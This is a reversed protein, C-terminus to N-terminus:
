GFTFDLAQVGPDLFEIEFTRDGVTGKQRILQYLRPERVIGTGDPSSDVGCDNGPAVGDMTVKFRIPRGDKSPALVLHLDRSHFRYIIRAPASILVASEANVNWPGILGWHNFVLKAPSGYHKGRNDKLGSPSAFREALRFGIYSEPSREDASPPAEIGRGVIDDVPFEADSSGKEKLLNQIALEMEKYGGEGFHRYRIQGRADVLYFAPWYENSFAHWIEYNKDMVVPYTVNHERLAIEVNPQEREFSFEPTHVGIVVLGSDRYKASWEKVYPLTRLSNICTYTWFNILVVKGRLSTTSLPASNVWGGGNLEPTLGEFTLKPTSEAASAAQMVPISPLFGGSSNSQVTRGDILPRYKNFCHVLNNGYLAFTFVSATVILLRFLSQNFFWRMAFARRARNDSALHSRAPRIM